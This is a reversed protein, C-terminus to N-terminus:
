PFRRCHAPRRPRIQNRFPQPFGTMQRTARTMQHGRLSYVQILRSVAAQKEGSAAAPKRARVLKGRTNRTASDLLDARIPSHAIETEPDGLSEFYTRWAGPVSDPKDLFQEYLAEVANANGGFLPTQAYQEKLSNSM